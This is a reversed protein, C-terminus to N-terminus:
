SPKKSPAGRFLALVDDPALEPQVSGGIQRIKEIFHVRPERRNTDVVSANSSLQMMARDRLEKSGHLVFAILDVSWGPKKMEALAARYARLRTNIETLERALNPRGPVIPELLMLAGDGVVYQTIPELGVATDLVGEVSQGPTFTDRVFQAVEHQELFRRGFNSRSPARSHVTQEFLMLDGQSRTGGGLTAEVWREPAREGEPLQYPKALTVSPGLSDMEFEHAERLARLVFQLLAVNENSRLCEESPLRPSEVFRLGADTEVLAGIPFRAGLFPDAHFHVLRYRRNM